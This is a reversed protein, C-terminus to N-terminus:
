PRVRGQPIVGRTPLIALRPVGWLLRDVPGPEDPVQAALDPREALALRLAQWPYARNRALTATMAAAQEEAQARPLGADHELIAARESWHEHLDEVANAVPDHLLALLEAKHRRLEDLLEPTLLGKPADVHLRDGNPALRVGRRTLDSLIEAANANM